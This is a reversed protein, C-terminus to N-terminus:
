LNCPVSRRAATDSFRIRFHTGGISKVELSGNMQRVLSKVLRLGLTPTTEIDLNPPLGVGDDKVVMEFRTEDIPSVKIWFNGKGDPFAHKLSNTVLENIILGCPIASDISLSVDAVDIQFGIEDGANYSARLFGILSRIYQSLDIFALDQSGYLAEHILAMSKIRNQGERFIELAKGDAISRSQLYLLSSIVQLNNKVRHHIERLLVEKERLGERLREEACKRDTIDRFVGFTGIFRGQKDFRPSATVLIVRREGDPRIIELDYTTRRVSPRLRTQKRVLEFGAEDVFESLCRGVLEGNAVGFIEHAASNAFVFYENPDVVGLGEQQHEVLTRYREESERLAKDRTQIEALMQNFATVLEGVEDDTVETARLSYDKQTTIRRAVSALTAIPESILGQLRSSALIVLLHSILAVGAAMYLYSRIRTELGSVDGELYIEGIKRGRSIVPIRKILAHSVFHSVLPLQSFGGHTSGFHDFAALPKGDADYITCRAIRNDCEAAQLLQRAATADRSRLADRLSSALLEGTNSLDSSIDQRFITLEYITLATVLLLLAGGNTIVVIWILKGRIPLRKPYILNALRKTGLM